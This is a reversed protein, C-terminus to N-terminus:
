ERRLPLLRERRSFRAGAPSSLWLSSRARVSPPKPGPRRQQPRYSQCFDDVIVYLTTLFTDVDLM